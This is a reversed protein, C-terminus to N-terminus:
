ALDRRMAEFEEKGIERRAYRGMLTEPGRGGGAGANGPSGGALYRVALAVGAILLALLLLSFLGGLWMPGFGWWGGMMQTMMSAMDSGMM